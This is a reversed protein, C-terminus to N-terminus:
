QNGVKSAQENLIENVLVMSEDPLCPAGDIPTSHTDARHTQIFYDLSESCLDQVTMGVAAAFTKVRRHFDLSLRVRILKTISLEGPM